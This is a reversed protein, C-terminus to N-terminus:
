SSQNVLRSPMIRSVTEVKRSFGELRLNAEYNSQRVKAYYAKKAELSPAKRSM